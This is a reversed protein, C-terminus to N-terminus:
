GVNTSVLEGSYSFLETDGGSFSVINRTDPSYFFESDKYSDSSDLIYKYCNFKGASTTIEETKKCYYTKENTIADNQFTNSLIGFFLSVIMKNSSNASSIHLKKGVDPASTMLPRSDNFIKQITLDFPAPIWLPIPVIPIFITSAFGKIGLEFEKLGFGKKDLVVSGEIQRGKIKSWAWFDFISKQLDFKFSLNGKLSGSFDLFYSEDSEKVVTLNLRSIKGEFQLRIPPYLGDPVADVFVSYTWYDNVDWLDVFAVTEDVSQKGFSDTVTLTVKYIGPEKYSHKPNPDSSTTGDGFDWQYNEINGDIDSTNESSFQISDNVNGSHPGESKAKPPFNLSKEDIGVFYIENGLMCEGHPIKFYGDDGWLKGWSNKCILYEQEEDYGVIMVAHGGVLEADESHKYIGGQYYNFDSYVLMFTVVPGHNALVYQILSFDTETVYYGKENVPVTFKEWNQEKMDCTIPDNDCIESKWTDCGNADIGQYPFASELIAGENEILYDWAWYSNGGHCGNCGRNCCSVLQQESLDLDITPNEKQINVMTEIAGVAAFAWCSGCDGQKKVPTLWNGKQGHYEHNRWDLHEPIKGTDQPLTSQNVKDDLPYAGYSYYNNKENIEISADEFTVKTASIFNSSLLLISFFLVPMIITRRKM